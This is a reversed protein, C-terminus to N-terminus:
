FTRVLWPVFGLMYVGEGALRYLQSKRDAFRLILGPAAALAFVVFAGALAPGEAAQALYVALALAALSCLISGIRVLSDARRVSIFRLLYVMGEEEDLESEMVSNMVLNLITAALFLGLLVWVYVPVFEAALIPGFWVGATYICAVSIEKGVRFRSYRALALHLAAILSLIIGGVFVVERIAFLALGACVVVAAALFVSLIRAHEFHFRHRPNVSRGKTKWGDVLHDATYVVWVSLPLLVWFGWRMSVGLVASALAGSAAAGAVIDLSLVHVFFWIRLWFGPQM